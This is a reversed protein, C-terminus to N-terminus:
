GDAVKQLLVTLEMRRGIPFRLRDKGDEKSNSMLSYLLPLHTKVHWRLPMEWDTIEQALLRFLSGSQLGMNNQTFALMTRKSFAHFHFPDYLYRLGYPVRAVLVGGPRLVRHIERMADDLHVVHELVQSAYVLGLSGAPFPLRCVDAVVDV